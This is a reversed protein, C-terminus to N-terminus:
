RVKPAGLREFLRSVSAPHWRKGARSAIGAGNLAHAVDALSKAGDDRARHVADQVTLSFARADDANRKALVKGYAGLVVGRAKAAALAARTRDSIMKREHEAFVALMQLMMRNAEPMDAARIEVNADLLAAIFSLSRSLRDLRAILLVAKRRRCLDLAAALQPRDKVAGSEIETFTAIIEHGALAAHREVADQQAELGLGSVGQRQTSVRLYTVFGSTAM